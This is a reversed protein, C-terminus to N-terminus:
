ICVGDICYICVCVCVCNIFFSVLKERLKTDQRLQIEMENLEVCTRIPLGEKALSADFDILLEPQIRMENSSTQGCGMSKMELRALQRRMTQMDAQLVNMGDRLGFILDLIRKQVDDNPASSPIVTQETKVSHQAEEADFLADYNNSIMESADTQSGSVTAIRSSSTSESPTKKKGFKAKLRELRQKKTLKSKPEFYNKIM